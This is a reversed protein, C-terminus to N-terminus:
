YILDWSGLNVRPCFLLRRLQFCPTFRLGVLLVTLLPGATVHSSFFFRPSSSFCSRSWTRAKLAFFTSLRLSNRSNRLYRFFCFSSFSIFDPLNSTMLFVLFM